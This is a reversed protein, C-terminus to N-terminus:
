QNLHQHSVQEYFWVPYQESPYPCLSQEQVPLGRTEETKQPTLLLLTEHHSRQYPIKMWKSKLHTPLFHFLAKIYRLLVQVHKFLKNQSWYHYPKFPHLLYFNHTLPVCANVWYSKSTVAYSKMIYNIRIQKRFFTNSTKTTTM